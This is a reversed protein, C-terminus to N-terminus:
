DKISEKMLGRVEDVRNNVEEWNERVLVIDNTFIMYWWLIKDQIEKTIENM